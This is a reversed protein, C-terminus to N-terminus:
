VDNVMSNLYTCMPDAAPLACWRALEAANCLEVVTFRRKITPFIVILALDNGAYRSLDVCIM